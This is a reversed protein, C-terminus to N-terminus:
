YRQDIFKKTILCYIFGRIIGNIKYRNQILTQCIKYLFLLLLNATHIIMASWNNPNDATFFLNPSVANLRHIAKIDFCHSIKPPTGKSMGAPPSFFRYEEIARYKRHYETALCNSWHQVGGSHRRGDHASPRYLGHHVRERVSIRCHTSDFTGISPM